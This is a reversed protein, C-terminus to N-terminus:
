RKVSLAGCGLLDVDDFSAFTAYFDSNSVQAHSALEIIRTTNRVGIPM